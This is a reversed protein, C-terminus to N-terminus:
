GRSRLACGAMKYLLRAAVNADWEDGRPGPTVEVLDFGVVRRGSEALVRLLHAAESFSLGGPVPTGTHPCLDPSLGDIDFSVHVLDPLDAVIRRCAADWTAGGHLARRVEPDFYTVVRGRSGEIFALEQEGFDRIGVQVLRAVGPLRTMVEHMVSAHSWTFGEYARRLDCHADLHLIGLGPHRTALEAILGYPVSHDGGLVAVLRDRDLWRAAQGRVWANVQEGAADVRHVLRADQANRPRPGGQRILPAALARTRTSLEAIARPVPLLALGAEYVRGYDADLLDVQHSARLVAQPARATGGGYSTTAEYPVPVVVLGAEDPPCTLGFLGSGAAAAADADFSPPRRRDRAVWSSSLGPAPAPPRSSAPARKKSAM